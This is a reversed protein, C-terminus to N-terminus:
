VKEVYSLISTVAGPHGSTFEFLYQQANASLTFNKFAHRCFRCLVDKYEEDDYFLCIDPADLGHSVTLSVRQNEGLIVPTTRFPYNPSGTIPSGYSSFLCFRPGLRRRDQFKLVSYWLHSDVYTQQAEDIIFFIDLALLDRELL